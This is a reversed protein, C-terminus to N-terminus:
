KLLKSPNTPWAKKLINKDKKYIEKFIKILIDCYKEELSKTGPADNKIIVNWRGEGIISEMKDKMSEITSSHQKCYETFDKRRRQPEYNAVIGNIDDPIKFAKVALECLWELHKANFYNTTLGKILRQLNEKGYDENELIYDTLSKM